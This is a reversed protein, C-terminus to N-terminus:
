TFGKSIIYVKGIQISPHSQIAQVNFCRIHTESNEKDIVDFNFLQEVGKSNVFSRLDRNLIIKPSPDSIQLPQM